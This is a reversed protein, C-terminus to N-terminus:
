DMVKHWWAQYHEEEWEAWSQRTRAPELASEDGKKHSACGTILCSSLIVAATAFIRTITEM